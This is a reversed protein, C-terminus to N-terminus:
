DTSKQGAARRRFATPTLQYAERFSKNFSSLSHFGCDMAVALISLGAHEPAALRQAAERIRWSNLFDNFNRYGLGGNIAQRLRYEPLDLRAALQGITLGAERYVADREMLQQLRALLEDSIIADTNRRPVPEAGASLEPADRSDDVQRPLSHGPEKGTSLVGSKYDLLIANIALLLGGIPLYQLSDMWQNDVFVVQRLFILLLLYAGTIACFWLRLRRRSEILDVQWYRAVALLALLVLVFELVQPADVLLIDPSGLGAARLLMAALPLLVTAAVLGLQWRQLAFHDDFLSASFLWFLGPVATQLCLTLWAWPGGSALPALLYGAVGALLAAFLREPLSWSDQRLLLLVSLCVQSLAFGIAAVVIGDM